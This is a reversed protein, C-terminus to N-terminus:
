KLLVPIYPFYDLKMDLQFLAARSINPGTTILVELWLHARVMEETAIYCNIENKRENQTM